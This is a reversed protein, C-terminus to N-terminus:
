PAPPQVAEREGQAQAQYAPDDTSWHLHAIRFLDGTRVVVATEMVTHDIPDGIADVGTVRYTTLVWRTEGTGGLQREQVTWTTAGAMDMDLPLHQFAYAELTPDVIGFEYVVLDRALLSIAAATDGIRLASHFGDVAGTPTTADQAAASFAFLSLGAAIMLRKLM